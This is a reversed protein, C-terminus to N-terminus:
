PHPNHNQGQVHWHWKSTMQQMRRWIQGLNLFPENYFSVSSVEPTLSTTSFPLLFTTPTQHWKVCKTKLIQGLNFFPENYFLVSSVEPTLPTRLICIRVQVHWPWKLTKQYVNRLIPCLEFVTWRLVFRIFIQANHTYNVHMHKSKVKFIGLDNPPYETCNEWFQTMVQVRSMVPCLLHFTPRWAHM